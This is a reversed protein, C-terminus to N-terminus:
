FLCLFVRRYLLNGVVEGFGTVTLVLSFDLAIERFFFCLPLTVIGSILGWWGRIYFPDMRVATKQNNRRASLFSVVICIVLIFLIASWSINLNLFIKNPGFIFFLTSVIVCIAVDWFKLCEPASFWSIKSIMVKTKGAIVALIRHLINM